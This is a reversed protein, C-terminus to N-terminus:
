LSTLSKKKEEESVLDIKIRSIEMCVAVIIEFIEGPNLNKQNVDSYPVGNTDTAFSLFAAVEESSLQVFAAAERINREKEEDSKTSFSAFFAQYTQDMYVPLMKLGLLLTHCGNLARLSQYGQLPLLKRM